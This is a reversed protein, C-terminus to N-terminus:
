FSNYFIPPLIAKIICFYPPVETALASRTFSTALRTTLYLFAPCSTITTTEAGAPLVSAKIFLAYSNDSVGFLRSNSISKVEPSCIEIADRAIATESNPSFATENFAKWTFKLVVDACVFALIISM